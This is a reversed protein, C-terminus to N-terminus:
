SQHESGFCDRRDINITKLSLLHRVISMNGSTRSTWAFMSDTECAYMLCDRGKDDALSVDAGESVLLHYVDSNGAKAASMVPTMNDHDRSNINITKLSLLHRVISMTGRECAYMLCDRGMNDTLSVDAGESVLLHYVYSHRAKAATMLPTMNAHDRRNINIIKLSLLHRVISMNSGEFAYMLCDRGMDDTLSVDAGESVLLHYVDSHGAEAAKMVPTMNNHDRRNIDITKLSLLHRVISMNGGECAYMLCDRGKDNTLSVNAGESVLLHYVDSHGAEAATMVPTMNDHDGRNINITKLSLLHRVISMNGAKCAYMLCDRGNKDALSVDAGESVLLHYVDSHGNTTAMM